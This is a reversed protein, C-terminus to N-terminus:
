ARRTEEYRYNEVNEAGFLKTQLIPVLLGVDQKTSFNKESSVSLQAIRERSIHQSCALTIKTGKDETSLEKYYKYIAERLIGSFLRRLYHRREVSRPNRSPCGAQSLWGPPM